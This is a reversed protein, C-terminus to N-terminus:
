KKDAPEAPYVTEEWIPNLLDATKRGYEVMGVYYEPDELAKAAEDDMPKAQFGTITCKAFANHDRIPCPVFLNQARKGHKERGYNEQWERISKFFPSSLISSLTRNSNYVDYINDITYLSFCARRSKVTGTSISIDGQEGRV